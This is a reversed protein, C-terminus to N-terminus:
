LMVLKTWDHYLYEMREDSAVVEPLLYMFADRNVLPVKLLPNRLIALLDAHEPHDPSTVDVNAFTEEDYAGYNVVKQFWICDAGLRKGLEVFDIMERFNEKQVVFNICLAQLEGTQRLGAIFELNALLPEWKGPRRLKEYTEAKAADISVSLIGVMEPLSPMSNWRQPTLLQGNTLLHINLSPYEARNLRSLISRYHRSALAEGGGSLYLGKAGKLLPLIVQDAAREYSDQEDAKAAIIETRCSPCALNCTADYNLEVVHPPEPLITTHNEIYGRM